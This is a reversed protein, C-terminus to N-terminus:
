AAGVTMHNGSKAEIVPVRVTVETGRMPKSAIVITGKVSGLRERMSILGLGPSGMVADVDFGVGYDRVILQIEGPIGLLHVEFEQVGSHKIANQLSEQLVRFLTLSVDQPVASPVNDAKFKISVKQREALEKCFSKCAAVLGLYELKSSHLRHSLAQIDRGIDVLYECAEGMCRSRESESSARDKKLSELNVALLAVRQNIDDHLERAIRTREEEHAEILRRSVGALAEEAQKRKTVDVAMGVTRLMAGKADFFARGTAELWIVSGDPRLVRYSTQYTPSDPTLGRTETAYADRDEPHIKIAFQRGSDRTAGDVWNFIHVCEGSRVIVDTAVDWEFAYMGGAQIAMALREESERLVSESRKLEANSALLAHMARKRKLANSFIEAMVKLRRVLNETWWVRRKTSVFSLAGVIEGSVRLPVSAISEIGSELLYRRIRATEEPPVQSSSFVFPEGNLGRSTWWPWPVPKSDILFAEAGESSWSSTARLEAGEQMAEFLTIRDLKLFEAIRRLSREVNLTVHEEPLDIFTGSLDSLLREFALREALSKEAERKRAWQWLLGFIALTQALLVFIAALVYRKYLQWFSSPRNLVVSGPPLDSEKLGWRRLARGDFMYVNNSTVIPIDRPKEGNLVRVAMGAAVRADDAWNVLDGGVTGGRLDVDDVVFVPANAASALLPVAQASDIFREGAADQSIATHYVITNNPLNRLRELLGPMTLDTLYTFDLKSEYNHFRQKAIAEWRYDFKGMGGTVVVHKTGPLLRLAADLTAEPQLKGLVGTFPMDPRLRDPIEGLIACFIIPTDRLLREHSEAIFKLSDSGAAIIVDLKRGSYRQILGERIRRQSVQDPFLTLELSEEYFEIQYPSKQLGAFLAQDVEAFGPSSIIGLDNLVLVRRIPKLQAEAVGHILFLFLLLLSGAPWRRLVEQAFDGCPSQTV